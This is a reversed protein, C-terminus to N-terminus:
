ANQPQAQALRLHGSQGAVVSKALLLMSVLYEDDPPLDQAGFKIAERGFARIRAVPAEILGFGGHDKVIGVRM